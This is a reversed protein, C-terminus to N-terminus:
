EGKAPRLDSCSPLRFQQGTLDQYEQVRDQAQEAYIERLEENSTRCQKERLDMIASRTDLMSHHKYERVLSHFDDARVFGPHLWPVMGFSIATITLVGLFATCSVIVVRAQIPVVKEIGEFIAMLLEILAGMKAHVKLNAPLQHEM